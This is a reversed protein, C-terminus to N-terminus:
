GVPAVATALSRAGAERDDSVDREHVRVRKPERVILVSASTHLLVNRAVSGILLRALGTLGRSGMVVLDCPFGEAAGIIEHAPDGQSTSWRAPVGDELLQETAAAAFAESWGSRAAIWTEDSRIAVDSGGSRPVRALNAASAAVSLVEIPDGTLFRAGSLFAVAAAATPSGDVALLVRGITPRRVVLVPCPAHDVVEASISGLLMTRVPGLGRSGVVILEARSTEAEHVLVSAARGRLVTRRVIRDPRELAMAADKVIASLPEADLAHDPLDVDTPAAITGLPFIAPEVAGVVDIVSGEPWDLSDVLQRATESSASGDIALLVRM